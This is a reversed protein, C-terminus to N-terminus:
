LICNKRGLGFEFIRFLNQGKAGLYCEESKVSMEFDDVSSVETNELSSSMVNARICAFFCGILTREQDRSRMEHVVLVELTIDSIRKDGM